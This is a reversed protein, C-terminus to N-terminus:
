DKFAKRKSMQYGIIFSGEILVFFLIFCYMFFAEPLANIIPDTAPNFLWADNDFFLQHFLVFMQDFAVALFMLLVPPVLSAIFFPKILVWYRKTKRLFRVYFYTGIGSIFLVGYNVYFLRKVEYFHFLGDESSIFDPFNLETVWPFHLYRLLVYYNNMLQDYTLGLREPLDYNYIALQYLPIFWITIAIAISVILLMLSVIGMSEKFRSM